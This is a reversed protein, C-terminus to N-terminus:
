ALFREAALGLLVISHLSALALAAGALPVGLWRPLSTAVFAIAVGMLAICPLLYRGTIVVGGGAKISTYSVLHLLAMMGLFMLACVALAPWRRAVDRWRAALATWVALLGLWAGVQIADYAKNPLDIELNVAGGFFRTVFLERYGYGQGVSADLFAFRPFYFQWVYSLFERPVFSGAAPAAGGFAAGGAHSRTWAAGLVLALALTAAAAGGLVLATRRPPRARWLAIAVVAGALPALFYGRGHTLVGLLALVALAAVRGPTPGRQVLRLAALLVATSLLVLMADPNVNGAISALKPNLAVVGAVLPRAWAASFLEAAVLWALGVTVVFLAITALRVSMLRGLLSRDPTLEWVAAAYLYYVPPNAAAANPGTAANRAAAGERELQAEVEDVRHWAPRGEFHQVIPLVNLGQGIIELERSYQATGSDRLPGDGTEVLAQVYAVHTLEDPGHIPPTVAAWAIGNAAALVLLVALAPPTSRVRRWARRPLERVTAASRSGRAGVVRARLASTTPRTAM